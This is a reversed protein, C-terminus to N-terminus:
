TATPITRARLARFHRLRAGSNWWSKGASTWRRLITMASNRRPCAMALSRLRDKRPVTPPFRTATPSSTRASFSSKSKTWAAHNGYHHSRARDYPPAVAGASFLRRQARGAQPGLEEFRSRMYLAALAYGRTGTGRGELLDDALYNMNARIGEPTIRNLLAAPPFLQSKEKEQAAAVSLTGLAAIVLLWRRWTM